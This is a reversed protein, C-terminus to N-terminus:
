CINYCYFYCNETATATASAIATAIAAVFGELAAFDDLVKSRRYIPPSVM